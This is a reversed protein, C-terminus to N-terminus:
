DSERRTAYGGLDRPHQLLTLFGSLTSCSLRRKQSVGYTLGTEGAVSQYEALLLKTLTKSLFCNLLKKGFRKEGFVFLRREPMTEAHFPNRLSIRRVLIIQVM